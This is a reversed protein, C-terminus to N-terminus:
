VRVLRRRGFLGNPRILLVLLMAAWLVTPVLNPDVYASTLNSLVGISVGAVLAGFISDFGGIVIACFGFVLLTNVSVPSLSLIPAVFLGLVGSLSGAVIWGVLKLRKDPVGLIQGAFRNDNVARMAIGIRSRRFFFGLGIFIAASALMGVIDSWGLRVGAFDFAAASSVEPFARPDGGVTVNLIGGIILGVGITSLAAPLHGHRELPITILGGVLGGLVTSVLIVTVATLGYGGGAKYAALGVFLGVAAIDGQAFSIYGSTRFIVVLGAGSLAYVIGVVVGLVISAQLLDM